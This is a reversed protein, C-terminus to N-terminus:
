GLVIFRFTFCRVIASRNFFCIMKTFCNTTQFIIAFVKQFRVKLILHPDLTTEVIYLELGLIATAIVTPLCDNGLTISPPVRSGIRSMYTSFNYKRLSFILLQCFLFCYIDMVIRKRELVVLLLLFVLAHIIKWNIFHNNAFM